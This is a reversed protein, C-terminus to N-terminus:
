ELGNAESVEEYGNILQEARVACDAKMKNVLYEYIRRGNNGDAEGFQEKFAALREEKGTVDKNKARNLFDVIQESTTASEIGALYDENIIFEGNEKPTYLVPQGAACYEVLFTAADSILADSMSFAYRYDGSDDVIVNDSNRLDDLFKEFEVKNYGSQWTISQWFIPHPRWLLVIDKNSAFYNFITDKWIFYTGVGGEKEISFHSNWLVVPRGKIKKEWEPKIFERKVLAKYTFDMKPHGLLVANDGNRYGYKEIMGKYYKSYAIIRWMHYFAPMQYFFKLLKKGGQVDLCYSIFATYPTHKEIENVYFKEPCGRFIYPKMYFVIDPCENDLKFDSMEMIPYGGSKYEYINKFYNEDKLPKNKENSYVYVLRTDCEDNEECHEWITQFSPWVFYEQTFFAVKIKPCCEKVTKSLVSLEQKIKDAGDDSNLVSAIGKITNVFDWESRSARWSDATEHKNFANEYLTHAKSELHASLKKADSELDKELLKDILNLIQLSHSYNM